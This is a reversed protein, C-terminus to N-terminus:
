FGSTRASAPHLRLARVGVLVPAWCRPGYRCRIEAAAPVGRHACLLMGLTVRGVSWDLEAQAIRTKLIEIFDFRALVSDWFNLTSLRESRFLPSDEAVAAEPEGKAEGVAEAGEAPAESVGDM